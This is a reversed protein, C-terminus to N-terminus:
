YFSNTYEGEFYLGAVSLVGLLVWRYCSGFICLKHVVGCFALCICVVLIAVWWEGVGFWLFSVGPLGCVRSGSTKIGVCGLWM